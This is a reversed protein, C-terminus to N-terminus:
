LDVVCVDIAIGEMIQQFSALEEEHQRRAKAIEDDKSVEQIAAATKVDEVETRLNKLQDTLETRESEAKALQERTSHLEEICDCYSRFIERHLEELLIICLVYGCVSERRCSEPEIVM